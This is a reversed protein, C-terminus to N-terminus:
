LDGFIMEDGGEYMLLGLAEINFKQEENKPMTSNILVGIMNHCDSVGTSFNQPKIYNTKANTLVVDLLSSKCDKKFCTPKQILNSLDFLEMISCLPKSKTECMLDYNLDGLVMFKDYQSVCKDLTNTIEKCFETRCVLPDIFM